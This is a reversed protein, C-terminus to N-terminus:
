LIQCSRQVRNKIKRKRNEQTLGNQNWQQEPLQLLTTKDLSRHKIEKANEKNKEKTVPKRKSLSHGAKIKCISSVTGNKDNYNIIYESRTPHRHVVKKTDTNYNHSHNEISSDITKLNGNISHGYIKHGKVSEKSSNSEKTVYKKDHRKDEIQHSSKLDLHNEERPKRNSSRNRLKPKTNIVDVDNYNSVAIIKTLEENQPQDCLSQQPTVLKKTRQVKNTKKTIHTKGLTTVDKIPKNLVNAKNKDPSKKNTQPSSEKRKIKKSNNKNESPIDQVLESKQNNWESNTCKPHLGNKTNLNVYLPTEDESISNKRVERKIPSPKRRLKESDQYNKSRPSPSNRKISNTTTTDNGRSDARSSVQSIHKKAPESRSRPTPVIEELRKSRSRRSEQISYQEVIPQLLDTHKESATNYKSRPKPIPQSQNKKLIINQYEPADESEAESNCASNSLRKILKVSQFSNDSINNTFISEICKAKEKVSNKRENDIGFYMLDSERLQRTKTNTVPSIPLAHVVKKKVSDVRTAEKQHTQGIKKKDNTPSESTSPGKDVTWNYTSNYDPSIESHLTSTKGNNYIRESELQKNILSVGSATISNNLLDRESINDSNGLVTNEGLLYPKPKPIKNKLISKTAATNENEEETIESNGYTLYDNCKIPNSTDGKEGFLTIPKDFKHTIPVFASRRKRFDNSPPPKEDTAIINVRGSEAAFHLETKCFEVKKVKRDSDEISYRDKEITIPVTICVKGPSKLSVKNESPDEIVIEHQRWSPQQLGKYVTKPRTKHLWDKFTENQTDINRNVKDFYNTYAHDDGQENVIETSKCIGSDTSSEMALIDNSHFITENVPCTDEFSYSNRRNNWDNSSNLLSKYKLTSLTVPTDLLPSVRASSRKSSLIDNESDYSYKRFIDKHPSRSDLDIISANDTSSSEESPMRLTSANTAKWKSPESIETDDPETVKYNETETNTDPFSELPTSSIELPKSPFSPSELLNFGSSIVRRSSHLMFSSAPIGPGATSHYAARMVRMHAGPASAHLVEMARAVQRTVGGETVKGFEATGAWERRWQGAVEM